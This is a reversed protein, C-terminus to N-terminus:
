YVGVKASGVNVGLQAALERIHRTTTTSYKGNPAFKDNPNIYFHDGVKDYMAVPTGYSFLTIWEGDDEIVAKGYFSARSDHQAQLYSTLGVRKCGDVTYDGDFYADEGTSCFFDDPVFETGAYVSYIESDSVLEDANALEYMSVDYKSTETLYHMKLEVLQDRNLERVTM